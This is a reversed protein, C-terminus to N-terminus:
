VIVQQIQNLLLLCLVTQLVWAQLPLMIYLSFAMVLHDSGAKSASYPSRPDYSTDEYFFGTEGLSGYVEDTSVHLVRFASNDVGSLVGWHARVAELLRFTGVVNTQIFDGPGDISRDVHSEAALHLVADPEHVRFLEDMARRDCIDAQVFAYAPHKEVSRLNELSGAYTLKDVNVVKYGPKSIALRVVASGIFGAGGTVLLKM